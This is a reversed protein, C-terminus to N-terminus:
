TVLKGTPQAMGPVEIVSPEIREPPAIIVMPLGGCTACVLMPMDFIGPAIEPTGVNGNAGCKHCGFGIKYVVPQNM